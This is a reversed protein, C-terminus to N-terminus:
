PFPIAVADGFSALLALLWPTKAVAFRAIFPLYHILTVAIAFIAVIRVARSM